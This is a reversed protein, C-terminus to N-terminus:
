REEAKEMRVYGPMRLGPSPLKASLYAAVVEDLDGATYPIIRIGNKDLLRALDTSVAGCILEEVGLESLRFVKYVPSDSSFAEEQRAQVHRNEIDLVLVNKSADFVPSIRNNYVAVAVKM